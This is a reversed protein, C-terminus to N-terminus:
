EGIAATFIRGDFRQVSKRRRPCCISSTWCASASAIWTSTISPRKTGLRVIPGKTTSATRLDVLRGKCTGVREKHMLLGAGVQMLRRAAINPQGIVAVSVMPGGVFKGEM